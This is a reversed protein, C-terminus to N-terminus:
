SSNYAHGVGGRDQQNIVVQHPEPERSTHETISKQTDSILPDSTFVLCAAELYAITLREGLNQFFLITTNFHQM